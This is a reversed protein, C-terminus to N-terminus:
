NFLIFTVGEGNVVSDLYIKSPDDIDITITDGAELAIGRRTPEAAVVNIGGIVIVDTNTLEAQITVSEISSSVALAEATGATAVVKRNDDVSTYNAGTSSTVPIGGQLVKKIADLIAETNNGVNYQQYNM